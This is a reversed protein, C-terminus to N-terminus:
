AGQKPFITQTIEIIEQISLNQPRSQPSISLKQLLETAKEKSLDVSLNNLVTKRPQAFLLRVAEHYKEPSIVPKKKEPTITILASHVKPPPSFAGPPVTLIIEPKGWFQDSAALRNMAPEQATVREAVEKQILLVIKQPKNKLEGLIRFLFGTIYYPINGIVAYEGETKKDVVETLTELANGFYLSANTDSFKKTFAEALKTDRELSIIKSKPNEKLLETTLEGHGPGIEIITKVSNPKIARAIHALVKKDKLFHQGLRQM